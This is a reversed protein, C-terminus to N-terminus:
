ILGELGFLLENKLSNYCPEIIIEAMDEEVALASEPLRTVAATHCSARRLSFELFKFRGTTRHGVEHLILSPHQHHTDM